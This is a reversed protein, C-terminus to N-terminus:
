NLAAPEPLADADLLLIGHGEILGHHCVACLRTPVCVCAGESTAWTHRPTTSRHAWINAGHQCESATM